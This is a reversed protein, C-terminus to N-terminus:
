PQRSMASVDQSCRECRSGRGHPQDHRCKLIKPASNKLTAAKHNRREQQQRFIVERRWQCCQLGPLSVAGNLKITIWRRSPCRTGVLNM